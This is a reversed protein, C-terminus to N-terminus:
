VKAVGRRSANNTVASSTDAGSLFMTDQPGGVLTANPSFLLGVFAPSAKAFFCLIAVDSSKLLM